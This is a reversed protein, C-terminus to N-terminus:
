ENGVKEDPVMDRVADHFCFRLMARCDPNKCRAGKHFNRNFVLNHNNCFPCVVESYSKGIPLVIELKRTEALLIDIKRLKM